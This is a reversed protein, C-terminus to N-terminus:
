NIKVKQMIIAYEGHHSKELFSAVEWGDLEYQEILHHPVFKLLLSKKKFNNM